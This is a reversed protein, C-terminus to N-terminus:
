CGRGCSETPRSFSRTPSPATVILNRKTISDLASDRQASAGEGVLGDDVIVAVASGFMLLEPALLPVLPSLGRSPFGRGVRAVATLILDYTGLKFGLEWRGRGALAESGIERTATSYKQVTADM